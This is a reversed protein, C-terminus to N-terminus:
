NAISCLDDLRSIPEVPPPHAVLKLHAEPPQEM